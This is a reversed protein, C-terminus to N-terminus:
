ELRVEFYAEPSDGLDRFGAQRAKDAAKAWREALNAEEATIDIGDSEAATCWAGYARAVGEQGGLAQELTRCYRSEAAMRESTPLGPFDNLSATYLIETTSEM